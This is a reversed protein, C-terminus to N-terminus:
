LGYVLLASVSMMNCSGRGDSSNDEEQDCRGPNKPAQSPFNILTHSM